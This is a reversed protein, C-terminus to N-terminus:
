GRMNQRVEQDTKVKRIALNTQLGRAVWRIANLQIKGDELEAEILQLSSESIYDKLKEIKMRSFSDSGYTKLRVFDTFKPKKKNNLQEIVQRCKKNVGDNTQFPIVGEWPLEGEELFAQRYTRNELFKKVFASYHNSTVPKDFEKFYQSINKGGHSIIIDVCLFYDDGDKLAYLAASDNERFTVKIADQTFTQHANM